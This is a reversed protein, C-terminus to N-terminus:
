GFCIQYRVSESSVEDLIMDSANPVGDTCRDRFARVCCEPAIDDFPFTEGIRTCPYLM